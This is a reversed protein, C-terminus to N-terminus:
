RINDRVNCSKMTLIKSEREEQKADLEALIRRDGMMRIHTETRWARTKFSM